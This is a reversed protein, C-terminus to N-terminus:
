SAKTGPRVPPGLLPRLLTEYLTGHSGLKVRRAARILPVIRPRVVQYPLCTAATVLADAKLGPLALAPAGALHAAASDAVLWGNEKAIAFAHSGPAPWYLSAEVRDPELRRLLAVTEDLTVTTEYPTGVEVLAATRIRAQRLAAFASEISETSAALGLIENRIFTSGSGVRLAVEECGAEKLLRVATDGLDPAHLTTRLPLDVMKRYRPGFEALWPPLCAWRDNTIRFGTLDLHTEALALMEALVSTVPRLMMPWAASTPWGATESPPLSPEDASGDSDGGRAVRVEAYGAPDLIEAYLDHAPEPQDVLNRPPRPPPNRMVGTGGNVWLGPTRLFEPGRGRADLYAPVMTDAPGLAVAEVGSMSLCADPCLTAHPGFAILPVPATTRLVDAVRCALDAALSDVYLLVLEPSHDAVAAAFSADSASDPALLSVTHGCRRLVAGLMAVAHRYPCRRTRADVVPQIFLLRM